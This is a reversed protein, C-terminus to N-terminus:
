LARGNHFSLLGSISLLCDSFTKYDDDICMRSTCACSATLLKFLKLEGLKCLPFCLLFGVLPCTCVQICRIWDFPEYHVFAQFCRRFSVLTKFSEIGIKRELNWEGNVNENWTKGLVHHSNQNWVSFLVRGGNTSQTRKSPNNQAKLWKKSWKIFNLLNM